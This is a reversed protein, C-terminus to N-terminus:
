AHDTEEVRASAEAPAAVKEGNLWGGFATKFLIYVDLWPSWHEIYWIDYKVREEISTDGRLGHIQAWGTMGPRVQQRVLYLPIEQKFHDVHYPIEPRPGVLSMDGKLVNFLQPLEDISCKRIFSGFRTKRPDAATTWATDARSEAQMSMSRFKLMTFTKKNKGVREQRFLVPGPSSLRVGIATVLMVPSALVILVLSGLIDGGRKLAAWALNDLPAARLNILKSHGVADISPHAPIYENYFPIISIRVGEKDAATLIQKLYPTEYPELAVVLDDIITDALIDKLDEYGGLWLGLGRRRPAGVYGDLTFGMQPNAAIDRAYQAALAGDGVVIVHKQNYGRRRYYQVLTRGAMHKAAVLLSSFLWYLAVALRPFDMLRTVYFFAMLGLLTVGNSLLILTLVSAPNKYRRPAYLGAVNYVVVVILSYALAMWLYQASMLDLGRRGNLVEFRVYMAALYAAFVLAVDTLMNLFNILKQNQRIM